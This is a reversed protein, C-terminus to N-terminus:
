FHFSKNVNLKLQSNLLAQFCIKHYLIIMTQFYCLDTANVYRAWLKLSDTHKWQVTFVTYWSFIYQSFIYESYINACQRMIKRCLQRSRAKLKEVLTTLEALDQPFRENLSISVNRFPWGFPASFSAIQSKTKISFAIIKATLWDVTPKWAIFQKM